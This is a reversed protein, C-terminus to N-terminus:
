AKQLDGKKYYRNTLIIYFASREMFLIYLVFAFFLIYGLLRNFIFAIIVILLPILYKILTNRKM